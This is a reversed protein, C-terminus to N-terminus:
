NKNLNFKKALKISKFIVDDMDLYQYTGLRGIFTMNTIKKAEQIYKELKVKDEKLRKPYFPEDNGLTERSYEYFIISWKHKENPLFHKHEYIRTHKVNIDPYNVGTVGQFDGNYYKKKWFVTRYSLRGYKFKFFKDIEGSYFIHDFKSLMSIKLNSKLRVKINKHNLIKKIINTYGSLPIGTYTAKNYNDDYNFRMPIRKAVSAPLSKPDVGWQKKTYGYFFEKYLEEGFMSLAQEEFNKPNKIKLRKKEIFKKAELPSFKKEFFQNITHLNIPFSFIGKKTSAKIRNTFNSFEGFYNVYNWIKKYKTNFIHPGYVHEMIGTKKDRKTHCNGGVHDRKDIVKVKINKKALERALVSGSFGAGVILANKIKM